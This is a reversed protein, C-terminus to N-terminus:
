SGATLSCPVDESYVIEPKAATKISCETISSGIRGNLDSRTSQMKEIQLSIAPVPFRNHNRVAPRRLGEISISLSLALAIWTVPETHM